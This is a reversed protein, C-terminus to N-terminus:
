IQPRSLMKSRNAVLNGAGTRGLDALPVTYRGYLVDFVEAMSATDLDPRVRRHAAKLFLKIWRASNSLDILDDLVGYLRGALHLAFTGLPHKDHAAVCTAEIAFTQSQGFIM